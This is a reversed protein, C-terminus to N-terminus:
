NGEWWIRLYITKGIDSNTFLNGKEETYYDNYTKFDSTQSAQHLNYIEQTDIREINLYNNYYPDFGDDYFTLKVRPTANDSEIRSIRSPTNDGDTITDPTIGINVTVTQANCYQNFEDVSAFDTREQYNEPLHYISYDNEFSNASISSLSLLLAVIVKIDNNENEGVAKLWETFGNTEETDYELLKGDHTYTAMGTPIIMYIGDTPANKTNQGLLNEAKLM